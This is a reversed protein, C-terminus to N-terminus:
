HEGGGDAEIDLVTVEGDEGHRKAWNVAEDENDGRFAAPCLVCDLDGCDVLHYMGEVPGASSM